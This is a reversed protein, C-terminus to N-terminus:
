IVGSAFLEKREEFSFVSLSTTFMASGHFAHHLSYYPLGTLGVKSVVDGEGGIGALEVDDGVLQAVLDRYDSFRFTSVGERGDGQCGAVERQFLVARVVFYYDDHGAVGVGLYSVKLGDGAHYLTHLLVHCVEDEHADGGGVWAFFVSVYHRFNVRLLTSPVFNGVAQRYGAEGFFWGCGYGLVEKLLSGEPVSADKGEAEPVHHVDYALVDCGGAEVVGTGAVALEWLDGEVVFYCFLCLRNGYDREGTLPFVEACPVGEGVFETLVGDAICDKSRVAFVSVDDVFELIRDIYISDFVYDNCGARVADEHAGLFLGLVDLFVNLVEGWTGHVFFSAPACISHEVIGDIGVAVVGEGLADGEFCVLVDAVLDVVVTGLGPGEGLAFADEHEITYLLSDLSAVSDVDRHFVIM